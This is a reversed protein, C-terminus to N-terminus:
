EAQASGQGAVEVADISGGCYVNFDIGVQVARRAIEAPDDLQDYLIRLAGLSYDGGSGVATYQDFRTVDMDTAVRFIGARNTLLFTSGLDPFPSNNNREARTFTRREDLSLWFEKFFAFVDPETRLEPLPHEELHAVLLEEYLTWGTWALVSEGVRYIKRFRCNEAPFRQGGFNVLSDAALVTRGGKRVAVAVSM